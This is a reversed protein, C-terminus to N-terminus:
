ALLDYYWFHTAKLQARIEAVFATQDPTFDGVRRDMRAKLVAEPALDDLSARLSMRASNEQEFANFKRIADMVQEHGLTRLREEERVAPRAPGENSKSRECM